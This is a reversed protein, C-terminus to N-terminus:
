FLTLNKVQVVFVYILVLEIWWQLEVLELIFCLIKLLYPIKTM